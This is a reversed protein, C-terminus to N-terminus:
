KILGGAVAGGIECITKSWGTLNECLKPAVTQIITGVASRPQAAEEAATLPRARINVNFQQLESKQLYQGQEQVIVACSATQSALESNVTVSFFPTDSEKPGGLEAPCQLYYKLPEGDPDTAKPVVSFSFGATVNVGAIPNLVPPRNAQKAAEADRADQVRKAAAIADADVGPSVASSSPKNKTRVVPETADGACGVFAGIFNTLAICVLVQRKMGLGEESFM